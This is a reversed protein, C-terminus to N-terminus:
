AAMPGLHRTQHCREPHSPTWIRSGSFAPSPHGERCVNAVRWGNGRVIEECSSSLSFTVHRGLTHDEGRGPSSIVAPTTRRCPLPPSGTRAFCALDYVRRVSWTAGGGGGKEGHEGKEYRRQGQPSFLSMPNSVASMGLDWKTIRGLGNDGRPFPDSPICFVPATSTLGGPVSIYLRRAQNEQVRRPGLGKVPEQRGGGVGAVGDDTPATRVSSHRSSRNTSSDPLTLNEVWWMRPEKLCAHIPGRLLEVTHAVRSNCMYRECNFYQM